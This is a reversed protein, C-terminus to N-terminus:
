LGHRAGWVALEKCNRLDLKALIKTIHNKVVGETTYIEKAIESNKKGATILRVVELERDTLDFEEPADVTENSENERPTGFKNVLRGYVEENMIRLGKCTNIITSNFKDIDDIQKLIYGDCHNAMAEMIFEDDCFTTLILVKIDPNHQKILKTAEIGRMVPMQVDMLVIDPKNRKCFDVAELGNNVLGIVELGGNSEIMKKIGDMFLPEDDAILVKLV